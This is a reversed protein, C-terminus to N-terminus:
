KGIEMKTAVKMIATAEEVEEEADKKEGLRMEEKKGKSAKEKVEGKTMSM